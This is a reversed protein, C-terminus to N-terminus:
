SFDSEIRLHVKSKLGRDYPLPHLRPAPSLQSFFRLLASLESMLFTAEQETAAPSLPAHTGSWVGRM